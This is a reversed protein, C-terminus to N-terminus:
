RFSQSHKFYWKYIVHKTSQSSASYIRENSQATWFCIYIPIDPYITYLLFHKFMLM